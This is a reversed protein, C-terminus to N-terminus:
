STTFEKKEDSNQYDQFSKGTQEFGLTHIPVMDPEDLELTRFVRERKTLTM